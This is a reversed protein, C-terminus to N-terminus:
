KVRSFVTFLEAKKRKISTLEFTEADALRAFGIGDAITPADRGGFIKPCNTLHIEDVLRAGFLAGDLEGGGECLLRQVNWKARLWRLASPFNIESEGCIKVESVTSLNKRDTKSIRETTLM